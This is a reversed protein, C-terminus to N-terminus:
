LAMSINAGGQSLYGSHHTCTNNAASGGSDHQRNWRGTHSEKIEGGGHSRVFM